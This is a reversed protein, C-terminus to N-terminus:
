EGNTLYKDELYMSIGALAPGTLFLTVLVAVSFDVFIGMTIGVAGAAVYTMAMLAKRANELSVTKTKM